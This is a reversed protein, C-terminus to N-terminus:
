YVDYQYDTFWIIYVYINMEINKEAVLVLVLHLKFKCIM